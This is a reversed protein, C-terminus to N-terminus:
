AAACIGDFCGAKILPETTGPAAQPVGDLATNKTNM